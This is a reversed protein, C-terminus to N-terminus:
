ASRVKERLPAADRRTQAKQVLKLAAHHAKWGNLRRLIIQRRTLTKM